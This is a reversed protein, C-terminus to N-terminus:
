YGFRSYLAGVGLRYKIQLPIDWWKVREGIETIEELADHWRQHCSEYSEGSNPDYGILSINVLDYEGKRIFKLPEWRYKEM